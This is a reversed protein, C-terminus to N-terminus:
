SIHTKLSKKYNEYSISAEVCGNNKITNLYYTIFRIDGIPTTGEIGNVADLESTKAPIV